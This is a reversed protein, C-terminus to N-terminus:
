HSVLRLCDPCYVPRAGRPKFSGTKQFNELKLFVPRGALRSITASGVLPTRHLDGGIVERAARIRDIDIM